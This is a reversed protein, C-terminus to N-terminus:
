SYYQTRTDNKAKLIEVVDRVKQAQGRKCVLLADKYDIIILDQIGVAAIVKGEESKIFNNYSDLLIVDDSTINGSHDKECIDYLSDFSGLDNWGCKTPVMVVRDSKELIGYDISIKRNIHSFAENLSTSNKFAHAIDPAHREVEEKFVTLNFMFIGSNWYYGKSLYQIATACDPKEKFEQVKYGSEVAEGPCIYGYGTHPNTPEIGFTVLHNEALAEGKRLQRVFEEKEFIVHDSPFVVFIDKGSGSAEYIGAYIAPLTNKAEPEVVINTECFIYGMEKIADSVLSKHQENTVIYIDDVDALLLSRGFTQQFLSPTNEKYKVFQKPFRERSLPWLRTGGGGALIIVKLNIDGIRTFNNNKLEIV